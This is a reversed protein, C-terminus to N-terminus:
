GIEFTSKDETSETYAYPNERRFMDRTMQRIDTGADEAQCIAFYDCFRPCGKSDTKPLTKPLVRKERLATTMDTLLLTETQLRHLTLTKAARTMEVPHRKFLPAPQRKSVTGNKNLAQGKANTLRDDPYAKRLFNYMIGRFRSDKPILDKERLAREAMVGYARAQSDITLHETVIQTATKHEMLWTGGQRDTYILDPKLKHKAVVVGHEDAITFELPIEGDVVFVDPDDGYHEQYAIAMALGLERLEHAKDIVYEPVKASQASEIANDAADTFHRGLSGNRRRGSGYWADFAAHVWTGLDLADFTKRKPVLGMRWHWYWKKPCRKWTARESSTIIPLEPM